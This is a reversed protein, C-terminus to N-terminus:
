ADTIPTSPLTVSHIWLALSLLSDSSLLSKSRPFSKSLQNGFIYRLFWSLCFMNNLPMGNFIRFSSSLFISPNSSTNKLELFFIKWKYPHSHKWLMQFRPNRHGWTREERNETGLTQKTVLTTLLQDRHRHVFVSIYSRALKTTVKIQDVFSSWKPSEMESFAM